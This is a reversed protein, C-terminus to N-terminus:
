KGKAKKVGAILEPVATEWTAVLGYDAVQFIPAEADKNIAVITKSGKMGALHQIAGSIGVAVYLDPAVIKGTQGVQLDNAVYGADCAARTAGLAGGFLDTLQELVKFNEGNKMGRGGSVVVKAEALEPRSSASLRLEVFEAGKADLAGAAAKEVAGPAGLPAAPEFETQRVTAVVRDCAAEVKALANGANTPRIFAKAGTVRIVDSLMGADWLGAARPLLDKGLNTATAALTSAGVQQAVNAVIPAYTEALYNALGADEVVIVKSVFRAVDAGANGVSGGMVLGIVQGGSHQAVQRAFSLAPLSATKLAGDKHECFVLVNSM